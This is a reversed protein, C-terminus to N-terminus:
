AQSFDIVPRVEISGYKAGPIKAAIAIAEDLDKANVVYYGGLQEKTEAFPGDTTVIKGNRVRVTTAMKTPHLAEGGAYQGRDRIDKTFANYEDMVQQMQEPTASAEDAENSYILCIYQM